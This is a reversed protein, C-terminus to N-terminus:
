HFSITLVSPFIMLLPSFSVIIMKLSALNKHCKWLIKQPATGTSGILIFAAIAFATLTQTDGIHEKAAVDVSRASEAWFNLVANKIRRVGGNVEIMVKALVNGEKSFHAECTESERDVPRTNERITVVSLRIFFAQLEIILNNVLAPFVTYLWKDGEIM